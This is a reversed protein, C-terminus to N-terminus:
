NSAPVRHDCLMVSPLLSSYTFSVTREGILEQVNSQIARCRWLVYCLLTSENVCVCGVYCFLVSNVKQDGWM